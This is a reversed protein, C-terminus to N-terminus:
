WQGNVSLWVNVLVSWASSVVTVSHGVNGVVSWWMVMYQCRVAWGSVVRQGGSVM